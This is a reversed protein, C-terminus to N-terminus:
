PMPWPPPLPHLRPDFSFPEPQGLRVRSFDPHAPNLLYKFEGLVVVSPVRLVASRQERVWTAGFDQTAEGYPTARWSHPFRTPREILEAPVEAQVMAWAQDFLVTAAPVNVLVELAALSRTESCYAVHIGKPNWRGARRASGEGTFADATRHQACLRWVVLSSM